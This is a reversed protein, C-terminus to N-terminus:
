AKGSQQARSAAIRAQAWAEVQAADWATVNSSLHIPRPFGTKDSNKSWSWVTAASVNGCIERVTPLRYFKTAPPTATNQQMM